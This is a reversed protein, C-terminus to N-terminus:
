SEISLLWNKFIRKFEYEKSYPKYLDKVLDFPLEKLSSHKLILCKKGQTQMAGLEYAVNPNYNAGEEPEDFLAIGYKCCYLVAMPNYVNNTINWEPDDARICNFGSSILESKIFDSFERNSERFKMMLFVNKNFSYHELKKEMTKKYPSLTNLNYYLTPSIYLREPQDDISQYKDMLYKIKRHLDTPNSRNIIVNRYIDNALYEEFISESREMRFKITDEDYGDQKLRSEILGMDTYIYVPVVLVIEKYVSCLKQILDQSRVIIFTCSYKEIAYDLESKFFGYNHGGYTYKFFTDNQKAELEKFKAETIFKLDSKTAEESQRRKRTTYKDIKTATYRYKNSIYSVLDSKGTGAAGDVLFLVKM